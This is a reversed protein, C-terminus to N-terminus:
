ELHCPGRAIRRRALSTAQDTVGGRALGDSGQHTMAAILAATLVAGLAIIKWSRM